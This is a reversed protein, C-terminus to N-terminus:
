ICKKKLLSFLTIFIPYSTFSFFIVMPRPIHFYYININLNLSITHIGSFIIFWPYLLSNFVTPWHQVDLFVVFVLMDTNSFECYRVRWLLHSFLFFKLINNFNDKFINFNGCTLCANWYGNGGIEEFSFYDLIRNWFLCQWLIQDDVLHKKWIIVTRM